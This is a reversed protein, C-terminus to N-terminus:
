TGMRQQRRRAMELREDVGATSSEGAHAALMEQLTLLVQRDIPHLSGVPNAHVLHSLAAHLVVAADSTVELRVMEPRQDVAMDGKMEPPFAVICTAKERSM